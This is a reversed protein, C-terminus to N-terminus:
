SFTNDESGGVADSLTIEPIGFCDSILLIASADLFLAKNQKTQFDGYIFVNTSKLAFGKVLSRLVLGTITSM